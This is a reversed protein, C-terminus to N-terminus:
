IIKNIINKIYKLYYKTGDLVNCILKNEDRKVNTKQSIDIEAFIDLLVQSLIWAIYSLYFCALFDTSVLSKPEVGYSLTLSQSEASTRPKHHLLVQLSVDKEYRMAVVGLSDILIVEVHVAKMEDGLVRPLVRGNGMTDGELNSVCGFVKRAANLLQGILRPVEFGILLYMTNCWPLETDDVVFVMM